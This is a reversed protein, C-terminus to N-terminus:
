KAIRRRLVGSCKFAVVQRADLSMPEGTQPNRGQRPKKRRVIFKGFGSILVPKEASLARKIIDIVSEVHQRAELPTIEMEDSIRSIIKEKTVTM